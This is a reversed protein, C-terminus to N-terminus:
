LAQTRNVYAKYEDLKSQAQEGFLIECAEVLGPSSLIDESNLVMAIKSRRRLFDDLKTIMERRAAYHLEARLYEANHMLQEAQKPDRQIEDIIQLANIDYRRWLRESLPESSYIPTLDDLKILAARDLFTQKHAHSSEGYWKAQPFPLPMNFSSITEAIENGVNICDTLKGGFISVIRKEANIDIAHKRSLQVWDSNNSDAKVALPRVGCRESIIDQMTLPQELNLLANVNDLIFQRDEDTVDIM